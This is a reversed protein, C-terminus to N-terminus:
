ERPTMRRKGGPAATKDPTVGGQTPGHAYLCKDRNRCKGSFQTKRLNCTILKPAINPHKFPCKGGVRVYTCVGDMFRTCETTAMEEPTMNLAGAAAAAAIIAAQAEETTLKKKKAAPGAPGPVPGSQPTCKNCEGNVKKTKHKYCFLDAPLDPHAKIDYRVLFKTAGNAFPGKKAWTELLEPWIADLFTGNMPRVNFHVDETLVGADGDVLHVRQQSASFVVSGLAKFSGKLHRKTIYRFQAGQELHAVIHLTMADRANRSLSSGTKEQIDSPLLARVVLQYIEGDEGRVAIQGGCAERFTTAEGKDVYGYFPGWKTTCGLGHPPTVELGAQLAVGAYALLICKRDFAVRAGDGDKTGLITVM